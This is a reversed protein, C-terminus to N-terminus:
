ATEKDARQIAAEKSFGNPYRKTLKDVNANIVEEFTIGEVNLITTFYYLIDGLEEVVHGRPTPKGYYIRKKFADVLEGTEGSLGMLTMKLLEENGIPAALSEVFEKYSKHKM